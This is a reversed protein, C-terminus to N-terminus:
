NKVIEKVAIYKRQFIIFEALAGSDSIGTVDTYELIPSTLLEYFRDARLQIIKDREGDDLHPAYFTLLEDIRDHIVQFAGRCQKGFFQKEDMVSYIYDHFRYKKLIRYMDDDTFQDIKKGEGLYLQAINSIPVEIFFCIDEIKQKVVPRIAARSRQAPIYVQFIFFFLNAILALSLQFLIDILVRVNHGLVPLDQIAVYLVIYLAAVFSIQTLVKNSKYFDSISKKM